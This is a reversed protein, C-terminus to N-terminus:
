DFRPLRAMALLRLFPWERNSLEIRMLKITLTRRQMAKFDYIVQSWDRFYATLFINKTSDIIKAFLCVLNRHMQNQIKFQQM